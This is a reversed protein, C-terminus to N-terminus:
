AVMKVHGTALDYTAGVVKLKGARVPGALIPEQGKLREVGLEVNARIANTLRDGPQNRVQEVAPQILGVLENIAGPLPAHDDFQQVAAKVAGCNSHGLVMVLPVKLEAVAYEVSGKVVAGGGRVVNGAIRIVFLDGVGQDFLIEPAVRSDSCAIIAAVPFQGGALPVFDAPRRRSSEVRGTAFRENGAMLNAIVDNATLGIRPDRIATEAAAVWRGAQGVVVGAAALGTIRMWDRRSPENISFM